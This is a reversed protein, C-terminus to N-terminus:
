GRVPGDPEPPGPEAASEVRNRGASKARYLAADARALLADPLEDSDQRTAVGFSITTRREHFGARAALTEEVTARLRECLAMAGSLETAPLVVIFEEGGIRAVLDYPRVGEKLICALAKLAADGAPHGLQDNVLKFWDLDGIALSLNQNTRRSKAFEESLREMLWRRNYLGTLPDLVAQERLERRLEDLKRRLARVLSLFLAVLGLGLAGSVGLALRLDRLRATEMAGIPFSVSIGGRVDGVKYGQVAHCSLCSEETLLAGMFRFTPEDDLEEIRWDEETQRLEFEGLAEREFADPVNGPNLPKLSTIHFRFGTEGTAIESIERTMLAPNRKTFTGAATEVDPNALWPNSEVGATKPVWVGGYGANWRRALVLTGFISRARELEVQRILSEARLSMIASMVTFSLLIAVSIAAVFVRFASRETSATMRFAYRWGPTSAFASERDRGRRGRASPM